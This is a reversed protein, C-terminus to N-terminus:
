LEGIEVGRERGKLGGEKGKWCSMRWERESDMVQGLKHRKHLQIAKELM